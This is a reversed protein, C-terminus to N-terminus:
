RNMANQINERVNELFILDSKKIKELLDKLEKNVQGMHFDNMLGECIEKYELGDKQLYSIYSNVEYDLKDAGNMVTHLYSELEEIQKLQQALSMENM